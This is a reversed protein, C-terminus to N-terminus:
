NLFTPDELLGDLQDLFDCSLTRLDALAQSAADGTTSLTGSGVSAAFHHVQNHIADIAAFVPLAGTPTARESDLWRGFRCKEPDHPPPANRNGSLFSEM